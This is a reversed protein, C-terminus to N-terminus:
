LCKVCLKLGMKGGGGGVEVFNDIGSFLKALAQCSKPILMVLFKGHM